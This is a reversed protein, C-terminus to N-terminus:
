DKPRNFQNRLEIWLSKESTFPSQVRSLSPLVLHVLPHPLSAMSDQDQPKAKVGVRQILDWCRKSWDPKLSGQEEPKGRAACNRCIVKYPGMATHPRQRDPGPSSWPQSRNVRPPVPAWVTLSIKSNRYEEPGLPARSWLSLDPDLHKEWGSRRM